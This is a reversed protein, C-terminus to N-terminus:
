FILALFSRNPGGLAEWFHGTKHGVGVCVSAFREKLFIISFHDFFSGVYVLFDGCAVLGAAAEKAGGGGRVGGGLAM